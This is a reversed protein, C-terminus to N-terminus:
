LAREFDAIFDLLAGRLEENNALHEPNKQIRVFRPYSEESVKLFHESSWRQM